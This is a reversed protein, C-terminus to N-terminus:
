LLGEPAIFAMSKLFVAVFPRDEVPAAPLCGAEGAAVVAGQSEDFRRVATRLSPANVVHRNGDATFICYDRMADTAPAVNHAAGAGTVKANSKRKNPSAM